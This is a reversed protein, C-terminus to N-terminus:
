KGLISFAFIPMPVTSEEKNLTYTFYLLLIGTDVIIIIYSIIQNLERPALPTKFAMKGKPSLHFGIYRRWTIIERLVKADLVLVM